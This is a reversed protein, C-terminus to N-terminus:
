RPWCWPGRYKLRCYGKSISRHSEFIFLTHGLLQKLLELFTPRDIQGVKRSEIHLRHRLKSRTKTHFTEPISNHFVCEHLTCKFVKIQWIKTLVQITGSPQHQTLRIWNDWCFNNFIKSLFVIIPGDYFNPNDVPFFDGRVMHFLKSIKRGMFNQQARDSSTQRRTHTSHYAHQVRDHTIDCIHNILDRM